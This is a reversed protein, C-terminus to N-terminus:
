HCYPSFVSATNISMASLLEPWKDKPKWVVNGNQVDQIVPLDDQHYQRIPKDVLTIVPIYLNLFRFPEHLIPDDARNLLCVIAVVKGGGLTILNVLETTTSFNNCVDEVIIVEDGKTIGHRKFVLHSKERSHKTAVETVEKEPFIYRAYARMAMLSALSMGGLPAGCFVKDSLGNRGGSIKENLISAYAWLIHPYAELVAMNLYIDGVFQRGKEDRGAYGVLPGLRQGHPSKPCEYYGGCAKVAELLPLQRALEQNAKTLIM